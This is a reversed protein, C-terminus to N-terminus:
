NGGFGAVIAALSVAGVCVWLTVGHLLPKLGVKKLTAVTLGSGILFLTGKLLSRGAYEVWKGVPQLTPIWTVLAAMAIFGLIFWPYQRPASAGESGKYFKAILITLPIIWLARVLKITTGIEAAHPGYQVTAGVVSSTDHIALAAWIGFQNESLGLAHGLPPFLVLGIANLVFVVALSVSIEEEKSRLASSVAAIASGGCIATGANLLIAIGSPIGFSKALLHGALMTLALSTATFVVGNMGAKAVVLLNMGAGLCIISTSLLPKVWKRTKALFPNGLLLAIAIGLALALASNLLPSVALIFGATIAIKSTAVKASSM